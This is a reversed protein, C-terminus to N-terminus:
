YNPSIQDFGAAVLYAQIDRETPKIGCAKAARAFASDKQITASKTAAAKVMKRAMAPVCERAWLFCKGADWDRELEHEYASVLRM